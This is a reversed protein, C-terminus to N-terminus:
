FENFNMSSLTKNKMVNPSFTDMIEEFLTWSRNNSIEIRHSNYYKINEWLNKVKSENKIKWKAEESHTIEIIRDEVINIWEENHLRSNM